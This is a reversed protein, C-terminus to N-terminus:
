FKRIHVPAALGTRVARTLSMHRPVVWRHAIRYVSPTPEISVIIGVFKSM